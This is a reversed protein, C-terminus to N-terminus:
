KLLVMSKTIIKTNMEKSIETAELNYFYIGSSLGSADFNFSYNGTEFKQNSIASVEKGTVDYIKLNIFASKKLIFSIKTSNNFPNPYNQKLEFSNLQEIGGEKIGISTSNKIARVSYALTKSWTWPYLAASNDLIYRYYAYTSSTQTSTWFVASHRMFQFTGNECEGAGLATFGSSNNAGTNPPFWHITDAEKLKGGAVSNGGLYNGLVTWESDTPVHFGVPCVGQVGQITSNRMTANWHYLRGYINALSDSYNYSLVGPISTGDSYHLSKINEKLWVQTGITVTHYINGDYDVVISDTNIGAFTPNVSNNNLIILALLSISSLFSILTFNKKM